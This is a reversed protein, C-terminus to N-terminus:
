ASVKELEAIAPRVRSLHKSKTVMSYGADPVVWTGHTNRYAIPTQFSYIIYDVGFMDHVMNMKHRDANDMRGKDPLPADPNHHVGRLKSTTNHFAENRKLLDRLTWWGDADSRFLTSAM